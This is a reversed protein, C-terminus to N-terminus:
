WLHLQLTAHGGQQFARLHLMFDSQLRPHQSSLPSSFFAASADSQPKEGNPFSAESATQLCVFM